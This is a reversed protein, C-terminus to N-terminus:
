QTFRHVLYTVFVTFALAFWQFAHGRHRDAGSIALPARQQFALPSDPALRLIYPLVTAGLRSQVVDRDLFQVRLIGNGLAEVVDAGRLKLGPRPWAAIIGNLQVPAETYPLAPVANRTGPMAVWGRDVMLWPAERDGMRQPTYVRYGIRGQDDVENDLLWHQNAAFNGPVWVRRWQWDELNLRAAYEASIFAPEALSRQYYLEAATRKEEAREIQWYGLRAFLAISLFAAM